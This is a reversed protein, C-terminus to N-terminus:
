VSRIAGCARGLARYCEAAESDGDAEARRAEEAPDFRGGPTWFFWGGDAAPDIGCKPSWPGESAAWGATQEAAAAAAYRASDAWHSGSWPGDGAFCTGPAPGWSNIVFPERRWCFRCRWYQPSGDRPVIPLAVAVDYWDGCDRRRVQLESM